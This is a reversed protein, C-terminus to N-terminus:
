EGETRLLVIGSMRAYAERVRKPHFRALFRWFRALRMTRGLRISEDFISRYEVEIWGHPRFFATGEAPGFILPANGARLTKGWSRELMKLLKPSALDMLWWEVSPTRALARALGAVEEPPLYVLLGESVALSRRATSAVRDLLARREDPNTVDASVFEVRCAPRESSLRKRKYDQIAPLDVDFWTVSSPLALRYPRTDLGAALNIVTDVGERVIQRGIIEDMVATRVIMPWAFQQAKPIRELMERGREGALMEAYPDRFLADPRQSELARYMAVWLATDSVSSVPSTM